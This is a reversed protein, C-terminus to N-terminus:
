TYPIVIHGKSHKDKNPDRGITNGSTSNSEEERPEANSNEQRRNTFKMEVKDLAWKPYKCEPLAKRLHQIEMNFLGPKTCVIRARHALTSIVSYKAVLNPHSDWKLYQVINTPKRYVTISLTNDTKSKALTDLFPCAGNEQNDEATFKIAPNVKNIHELLTQKQGEQQIVFPDDVYRMWLRPPSPLVLVKKKEEFHKKYLNVVIPSVTLGM